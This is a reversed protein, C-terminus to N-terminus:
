VLPPLVRASERKAARAFSGCRAMFVLPPDESRVEEWFVGDFLCLVIGLCGPVVEAGADRM